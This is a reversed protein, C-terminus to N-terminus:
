LIGGTTFAVGVAELTWIILDSSEDDLTDLELRLVASDGEYYDAINFPGFTMTLPRDLVPGTDTVVTDFSAAKSGYAEAATAARAVPAVAGGSDAILVGGAGLVLVSLIVDGGVGPNTGGDLSYSLTFFLPFATCLGAPLAFQFSVSDGASNLKGKKVKQTWGTPSGGSGVGISADAAGGGAVEGWVNGVGFLTSRWMALGRATLQGQANTAVHSPILRWRQFTPATTITAAIRVRMWHGLTGSITTEAWTTSDDIGPRLTEESSPRLFVDNAYRYQSAVNIAMVDIEVWTNAATQIEFIFSGAGLVAGVLDQDIELGWHKLAVGVADTRSTCWLISFGTAGGTRWQFTFTSASRSGAATSEDVFSWKDM